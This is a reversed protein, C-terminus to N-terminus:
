FLSGRTISDKGYKQRIEDLANDLKRNKEEKKYDYDFLSLQVPENQDILKSSRIGLLRIPTHDWLRDFLICAVRYISHNTNTPTDLQMQHSVSVFSSYKIEVCINGAKVHHDRLRKSVTEALNRLVLKADSATKADQTLTTSNGIGKLNQPTADVTTDGIGNAYNWLLYGHSKLHLSLLKPDAAALDGITFIELKNLVTVSSKGAMYLDSVPLPWMKEAIEHPFLTHVFNPKEFDSAMKALLKNTSIGINVTFGFKNYVEDKIWAACLTPSEYLHAIGTYDLYCEDISLQQIDPTITHLFDMLERSYKEYIGRTPPKIVLDPCKKLANTIPEGTKIKYKKAPLSKALVIGHRSKQDGGIIAPITRIDLSEGAKLDEIATWSLYASNVDIHFIITDM